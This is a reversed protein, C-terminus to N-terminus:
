GVLRCYMHWTSHGLIPMVLALGLLAPLTGLFLLSAVLAGWIFIVIPNRAMASFATTLARWTGIDRDLALPFSVLGIGLMIVAFIAGAICGTITMEWGAKTTIVSAFFDLGHAPGYAGLTNFYIYAATAVWLLYIGVAILGLNQITIRRHTDFIKAAEEASATGTEERAKSLAAFWITAMPGLLAFGACVPFVFPMLSPATVVAALMIAAVPALLALMPVETHCARWDAIGLRLADQMDGLNLKRITLEPKKAGTSPLTAAPAASM